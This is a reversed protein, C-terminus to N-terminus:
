SRETVGGDTLLDAHGLPHFRHCRRTPHHQACGRRSQNIACCGEARSLQNRDLTRILGDRGVPQQAYAFPMVIDPTCLRVQDPPPPLHGGDLAQQVM